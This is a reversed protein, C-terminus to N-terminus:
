SQMPLAVLRACVDGGKSRHGRIGPADNAHEAPMRLTASYALKEIPFMAIRLGDPVEGLAQASSIVALTCALKTEDGISPSLDRANAPSQLGM